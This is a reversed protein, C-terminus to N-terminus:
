AIIGGGVCRDGRYLVLSQGPALVHPEEFRITGGDIRVPVMPERYRAMALLPEGDAVKTLWHAHKLVCERRMADAIDESVTITNSAVDTAIVYHAGRSPGRASIRFGHRQGVTYLGAGEHTGIREGAKSLVDGEPVSIYRRLFDRMSVDGVFCLGQSDHKAAVPLEFREALRRVEPKTYEGVPFLTRELVDKPIRYLFYTQDKAPDKARMLAAEGGVHLLRAYHGTAVLDAGNTFCWAAFVGFKIRENCSVDPNPTGGGQYTEIMERVVSDKYEASLDIERFPLDLKAAVRMADLRDRAWTCEIFEPQWIKIFVGTVEYGARKLLAASVASDVGGSLGVFVKKSM